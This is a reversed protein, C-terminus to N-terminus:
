ETAWGSSFGCLDLRSQAIVKHGLKGGQWDTTDFRPLVLPKEDPALVLRASTVVGAAHQVLVFQYAPYYTGREYEAADTIINTNLLGIYEDSALSAAFKEIDNLYSQDVNSFQNIRPKRLHAIQRTLNQKSMLSVNSKFTYNMSKVKVAEIESAPRDWIEISLGWRNPTGKIPKGDPWNDFLATQVATVASALPAPPPPGKKKVSAVTGGMMSWLGTKVLSSKFGEIYIPDRKCLEAFDFLTDYSIHTM